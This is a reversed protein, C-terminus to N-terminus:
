WGHPWRYLKNRASCTSLRRLCVKTNSSCAPAVAVHFVAGRARSRFTRPGRSDAALFSLRPTTSHSHTTVFPFAFSSRSYSLGSERLLLCYHNSWYPSEMFAYQSMGKMGDMGTMVQCVDGDGDGNVM